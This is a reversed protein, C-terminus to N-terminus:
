GLGSGERGPLDVAGEDAAEDLACFSGKLTMVPAKDRGM